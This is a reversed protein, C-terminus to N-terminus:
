GRVGRDRGRGRDRMGMRLINGMRLMIGICMGGVGSARTSLELRM